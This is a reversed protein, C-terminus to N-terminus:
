RAMLSDPQTQERAAQQRAEAEETFQFPPIRRPRGAVIISGASSIM